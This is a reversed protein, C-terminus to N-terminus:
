TKLKQDIEEAPLWGGFIKQIEHAVAISLRDNGPTGVVQIGIPLNDKDFGTHVQTVPLGLTNFIMMYCPDFLRYYIEYHKNASTPFTPYFLLGNNGLLSLIDEKLKKKINELQRKRQAPVQRMAFKLTNISVSPLTSESQCTFYKLMEKGATKPKRGEEPKSYITDFPMNLMSLMSIDLTWKMLSLNVEKANFHSAIKDLNKSMCPSLRETLGSYDSKMFHYNITSVDIEKFLELKPGNEERVAELLFPLDEAYRVMPATTFFTGWLPDDSQPNHGMPSCVFPTPKHAYIGVFMAPLRCSGAIDSCLGM